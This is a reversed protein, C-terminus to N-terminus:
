NKKFENLINELSAKFMDMQNHHWPISNYYEVLMNEIKNMKYNDTFSSSERKSIDSEKRELKYILSNYEIEKDTLEKIKSKYENVISDDVQKVNLLFMDEIFPVLKKSVISPQPIKNVKLHSLLEAKWDLLQFYEGNSNIIDQNINLTNDKSKYKFDELITGSKLIVIKKDPTLLQFDKLVKHKVTM